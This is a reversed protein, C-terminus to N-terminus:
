PWSRALTASPFSPSRSPPRAGDLLLDEGLEFGQEPIGRLAGGFREPGGDAAEEGAERRGFAGAVERM